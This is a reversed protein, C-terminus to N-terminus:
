RWVNNSEIFLISYNIAKYHKVRVLVLKVESNQDVLALSVFNTIVPIKFFVCLNRSADFCVCLFQLSM